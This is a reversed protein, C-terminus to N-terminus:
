VFQTGVHDLTEDVTTIPVPPLDEADDGGVGTSCHATHAGVSRGLRRKPCRVWAAAGPAEEGGRVGWSGGSRGVWIRAGEVILGLSLWLRETFCLPVSLPM